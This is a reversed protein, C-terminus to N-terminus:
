QATPRPPVRWLRVTRDHGGSALLAGDPSFALCKVKGEHGELVAVPDGTAADWLGVTQGDATALTRGDPSFAVAAADDGSTALTAKERRGAVDWLKVTGSLDGSALTRGDPAVAVAVVPRAHGHLCALQEGTSVDWLLVMGDRDGAALVAGDAAFALSFLSCALGKALMRPRGNYADLLTVAGELDGVALQSGDASFALAHVPAKSEWSLWESQPSTNGLRVDCFQDAVALRGERPDLAVTLPGGPNETRRAKAQGTAVDWLVVEVGTKSARLNYAATTLTAGDSGFALAHVPLHHGQLTAIPGSGVAYAQRAPGRHRGLFVATLALLIFGVALLKWNKSFTM